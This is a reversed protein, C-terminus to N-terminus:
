NVWPAWTHSATGREQGKDDAFVAKGPIGGGECEKGVLITSAGMGVPWEYSRQFGLRKQKKGLNATVFNAGVKRNM